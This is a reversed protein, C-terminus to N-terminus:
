SAEAAAIRRAALQAASEDQSVAARAPRAPEVELSRVEPEAEELSAREEIDEDSPLPAPAPRGLPSGRATQELAGELERLLAELRSGERQTADGSSPPRAPPLPLPSSDSSRGSGTRQKTLVNFVVWLFGLLLLGVFDV